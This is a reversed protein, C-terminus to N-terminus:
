LRSVIALEETEVTTNPFYFKDLGPYATKAKEATYHYQKPTASMRLGIVADTPTVVYEPAYSSEDMGRVGLLPFLSEISNPTTYPYRKPGRLEPFVFAYKPQADIFRMVEAVQAVTCPVGATKGTKISTMAALSATAPEVDLMMIRNHTDPLRKTVYRAWEKPEWALEAPTSCGWFHQVMAITCNGNSSQFELAANQSKIWDSYTPNKINFIPIMGNEVAVKAAELSKRVYWFELPRDGRVRVGDWILRPQNM